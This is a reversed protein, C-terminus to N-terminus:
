PQEGASKQAPILPLPAIHTIKAGQPDLTFSFEIASGVQLGSPLGSAPLTFDMTMPPWKLEAVAGHSITVQSGEIADLRGQAQYGAPKDSATSM